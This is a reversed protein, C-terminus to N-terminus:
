MVQDCWDPCKSGTCEGLERHWEECINGDEDVPVCPALEARNISDSIVVNSSDLGIAEVKIKTNDIDMANNRRDKQKIYTNMLITKRANAELNGISWTIKTETTEDFKDPERDSILKGSEPGYYDANKFMMGKALEVTVNVDYLPVDGSNITTINYREEKASESEGSDEDFIATTNDNIECVYAIIYINRSEGIQPAVSRRGAAAGLPDRDYTYICEYDECSGPECSKNELIPPDLFSTNTTTNIEDTFATVMGVKLNKKAYYNDTYKFSSKPSIEDSDPNATSAFSEIRQAPNSYPSRVQVLSEPAIVGVSPMSSSKGIRLVPKAYINGLQGPFLAINALKAPVIQKSTLQKNPYKTDAELTAIVVDSPWVRLQDIAPITGKFCCPLWDESPGAAVELRESDYLVNTINIEKGVTKTEYEWDYKKSGTRNSWGTSDKAEIVANKIKATYDFSYSSANISSDMKTKADVNIYNSPRSVFDWGDVKMTPSEEYRIKKWASIWRNNDFFGRGFFESIGREGEFDVYLTHSVTANSINTGNGYYYNIKEELQINGNELYNFSGSKLGTDFNSEEVRPERLYSYTTATAGKGECTYTFQMISHSPMICIMMMMMMMMMMAIAIGICAKKM